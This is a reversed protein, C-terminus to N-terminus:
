TRNYLLLLRSADTTTTSLHNSLELSLDRLRLEANRISEPIPDVETAGNMIQFTMHKIVNVSKMLINLRDQISSFDPIQNCNLIRPHSAEPIPHSDLYQRLRGTCELVRELSEVADKSVSEILGTHKRLAIVAILKLASLNSKAQEINKLIRAQNVFRLKALEREGQLLEDRDVHIDQKGLISAAVNIKSLYFDYDDPHFPRLILEDNSVSQFQMEKDMASSDIPKFLSVFNEQLVTEAENVLTSLDNIIQSLIGIDGSSVDRVKHLSESLDMRELESDIVVNELELKLREEELAQQELINEYQEIIEELRTVDPGLTKIVVEEDLGEVIGELLGLGALYELRSVEDDSLIRARLGELLALLAPSHHRAEFEQDFYEAKLKATVYGAGRLLAILQDAKKLGELVM